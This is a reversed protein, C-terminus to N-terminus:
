RWIMRAEFLWSCLSMRRRMSLARSVMQGRAPSSFMARTMRAWSLRSASLMGAM